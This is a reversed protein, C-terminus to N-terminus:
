LVGDNLLLYKQMFHEISMTSLGLTKAKEIVTKTNSVIVNDSMRLAFFLSASQEWSIGDKAQLRFTRFDNLMKENEFEVTKFLDKFSSFMEIPADSIKKLRELNTKTILVKSFPKEEEMPTNVLDMVARITPAYSEAEAMLLNTKKM